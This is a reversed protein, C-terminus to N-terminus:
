LRTVSALERRGVGELLVALPRVSASGRAGDLAALHSAVLMVEGIPADTEAAYRGVWRAAARPYRAPWKEHVLLTLALADELSVRRLEHATAWAVGVNRRQLARKFVSYPQGDSTM